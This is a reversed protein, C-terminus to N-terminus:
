PLIRRIVKNNNKNRATFGVLGALGVSIMALISPEPVVSYSISGSLGLFTTDGVSIDRDPGYIGTGTNNIIAEITNLGGINFGGTASGSSFLSSFSYPQAAGGDTFVMEGPAGQISIIGTAGIVQGNLTLVARDDAYFGEYSLSVGTANPPLYFTYDALWFGTFNAPNGGQIFSGTSDGTSTLSLFNYNAPPTGEIYPVVFPTVNQAGGGTVTWGSSTSTSFFISNQSYICFCSNLLVTCLILIKTNM